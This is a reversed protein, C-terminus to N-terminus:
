GHTPAPIEPRCHHYRAYVSKRWGNRVACGGQDRRTHSETERSRVGLVVDIQDKTSAILDAVDKVQLSALVSPGGFLNNASGFLENMLVSLGPSVVKRHVSTTHCSTGSVSLSLTKHEIGELKCQIGGRYYRATTYMGAATGFAECTEEPRKTDTSHLHYELNLTEILVRRGKVRCVRSSYCFLAQWKAIPLDLEPRCQFFV